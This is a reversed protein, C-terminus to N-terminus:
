FEEQEKAIENEYKEELEKQGVEITLKEQTKSCNGRDRKKCKEREMMVM